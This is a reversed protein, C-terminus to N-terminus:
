EGIYIVEVTIINNIGDDLVGFGGTVLSPCDWYKYPGGILTRDGFDSIPGYPQPFVCNGLAGGSDRWVELYWRRPNPTLIDRVGAGATQFVTVVTQYKAATIALRQSDNM